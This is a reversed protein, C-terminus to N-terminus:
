QLLRHKYSTKSITKGYKLIIDVSGHSTAIESGTDMGMNYNAVTETGHEKAEPKSYGCGVKDEDSVVTSLIQSSYINPPANVRLRGGDEEDGRLEPDQFEPVDHLNSGDEFTLTVTAAYTQTVTAAAATEGWSEQHSEQTITSVNEFQNNQFSKDTSHSHIYEGSKGTHQHGSSESQQQQQIARANEYLTDCVHEEGVRGAGEEITGHLTDNVRRLETEEEQVQERQSRYM